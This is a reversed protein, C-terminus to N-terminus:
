YKQTQIEVGVLTSGEKKAAIVRHGSWGCFCTTPRVLTRANSM